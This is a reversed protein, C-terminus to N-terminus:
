IINKHMCIWGSVRKNQTVLFPLYIYGKTYLVCRVGQRASHLANCMKFVKGNADIINRTRKTGNAITQKQANLAVNQLSVMMCAKQGFIQAGRVSELM